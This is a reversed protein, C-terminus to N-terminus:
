GSAAVRAAAELAEKSWDIRMIVWSYAVAQLLPGICIGLYLGYVGAPTLFALCLAAPVAALYFSAFNIAAGYAQKGM